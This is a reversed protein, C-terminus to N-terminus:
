QLLREVQKSIDLRKEQTHNFKGLCRELHGQQLTQLLEVLSSEYGTVQYKCDKTVTTPM